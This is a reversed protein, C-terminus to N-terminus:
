QPRVKEWVTGTNWVIRQGDPSMTATFDGHMEWRMKFKWGDIFEGQGRAFGRSTPGTFKLTKGFQRIQFHSQDPDIWEGAVSAREPLVLSFPFLEYKYIVSAGTLALLTIFTALLKRTRTKTPWWWGREGRLRRLARILFKMDSYWRAHTLEIANRYALDRLPEPLDSSNPM